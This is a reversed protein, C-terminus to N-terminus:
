LSRGQVPAELVQDYVDGFSMELETRRICSSGMRM